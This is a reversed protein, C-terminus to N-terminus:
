AQSALLHEGRWNKSSLITDIEPGAFKEEVTQTPKEQHGFVFALCQGSVVSQNASSVSGSCHSVVKGLGPLPAHATAGTVRTKSGVNPRRASFFLFCHNQGNWNQKWKPNM